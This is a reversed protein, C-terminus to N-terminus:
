RWTNAFHEGHPEKLVACRCRAWSDPLWLPHVDAFSDKGQLVTCSVDPFISVSNKVLGGVAWIRTWKGRHQALSSLVVKVWERFAKQWRLWSEAALKGATKEKTGM